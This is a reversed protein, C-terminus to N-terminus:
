FSESMMLVRLLMLLGKSFGVSPRTQVYFKATIRAAPHLIVDCPFIRRDAGNSLLAPGRPRSAPMSAACGARLRARPRHRGESGLCVAVSSALHCRLGTGCCRALGTVVQSPVMEERACRANPFTQGQKSAPIRGTVAGCWQRSMMQDRRRKSTETEVRRREDQGKTIYSAGPAVMQKSRSTKLSLM